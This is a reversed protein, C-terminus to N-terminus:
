DCMFSEGKHPGRVTRIHTRATNGIIYSRVCLRMAPALISHLPCSSIFGCKSPIEFAVACGHNCYCCRYMLLVLYIPVLAEFEPTQSLWPSVTNIHTHATNVRLYKYMCEITITNMEAYLTLFMRVDDFRMQGYLLIGPM